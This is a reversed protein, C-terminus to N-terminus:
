AVAQDFEYRSTIPIIADIADLKAQKKAAAEASKAIKEEAVRKKCAALTLKDRRTAGLEDQERAFKRLFQRLPKGLSRLYDSTGNFKYM